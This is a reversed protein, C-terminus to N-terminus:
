CHFNFMCYVILININNNFANILISYPSLFGMTLRYNRGTACIIITILICILIILQVCVNIFMVFVEHENYM